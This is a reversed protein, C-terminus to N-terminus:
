LSSKSFREQCVFPGVHHIKEYTLAGFESFHPDLNSVASYILKCLKLHPFM